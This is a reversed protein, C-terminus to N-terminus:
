AVNMVYTYEMYPFLPFTKIGTGRVHQWPDRSEDEWEYYGSTWKGEPHPATLYKAFGIQTQDIEGLTGAGPLFFMKDESNFRQNTTVTGGIPRTRFVSDYVRFEVGTASALQQVAVEPGFGPMAYLPNLPSSPAGGVVTGFRAMWLSSQWVRNLNKQSTYCLKLRVGYRDFMFQNMAIIDGIPDFDPNTAGDWSGSAPAINTQDAPRGWPVTFNIKGDNYSLTSTEISQWGMLEIRNDLMRRRRADDRAVRAQFDDATNGTFNLNGLPTQVGQLQQKIFLDERFRSVDSAAYRDKVAWDVVAARGQGFLLEDKQALEAEADEARAPALGEQLGDGLYDFIVDDTPVDMFPAIESLIVHGEPVPLQRIAGLSVEKRVLRDLPLNAM